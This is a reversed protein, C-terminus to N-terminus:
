PHESPGVGKSDPSRLLDRIHAAKEFDESRVAESLERRLQEEERRKKLALMIKAPGRGLHHIAGHIDRFLAEIEKRFTTYDNPCGLRSATKIEAWTIDCTPCRVATETKTPLPSPLIAAIQEVIKALGSEKLLREPDIMSGLGACSECAYSSRKQDGIIEIVRVTAEREKCNECKM